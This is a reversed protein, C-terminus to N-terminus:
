GKSRVPKAGLIGQAEQTGLASTHAATDLAQFCGREVCLDGRRLLGYDQSWLPGTDGKM